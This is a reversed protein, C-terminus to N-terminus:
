ISLVRDPAVVGPGTHIKSCHCHLLVGFEGFRRPQLMMMLNKLIVVQVSMQPIKARQQSANPTDYWEWPLSSSMEGRGGPNSWKGKIRVEYHQTNLLSADLAMKSTKLMVRGPISIRDRPGNAFVRVM